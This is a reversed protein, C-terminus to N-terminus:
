MYDYQEFELQNHTVQHPTPIFCKTQFVLVVDDKDKIQSRGIIMLRTKEIHNDCGIM